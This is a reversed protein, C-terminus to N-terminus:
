LMLEIIKKLFSFANEDLYKQLLNKLLHEQAQRARRTLQFDRLRVNAHTLCGLSQAALDPRV